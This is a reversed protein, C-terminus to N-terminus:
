SGGAAVFVRDQGAVNPGTIERLEGLEVLRDVRALMEWSDGCGLMLRDMRVAGSLRLLRNAEDRVKLFAVQGEETFLRPRLEAYQYAM